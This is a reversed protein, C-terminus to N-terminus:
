NETEFDTTLHATFGNLCKKTLFILTLTTGFNVKWIYEKTTDNLSCKFPM